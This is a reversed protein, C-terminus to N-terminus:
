NDLRSISKDEMVVNWNEKPIKWDNGYKAKLYEITKGPANYERGYFSISSLNELLKYDYYANKNWVGYKYVEQNNSELFGHYFIFIDLCLKEHFFLYKRPYVKIIRYKGLRWINADNNFPLARIYYKKRLHSILFKLKSDSEFKIGIDLDHDWPILKKDRVAGLLTGGDLWYKCDSIEIHNVVDELLSIAQQETKSNFSVPFKQYIGSLLNKNYIQRFENYYNPLTFFYNNLKIKTIRDKALDEFNFYIFRGGIFFKYQNNEIEGPFLTYYEPNKSIFSNKKRLKYRLHGLKFKPKLLIGKILLKFFLKIINFQKYNFIYLTINDTYKTLNGETLGIFSSGGIIHPIGSSTLSQCIISTNKNIM